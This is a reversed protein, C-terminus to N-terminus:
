WRSISSCMPSTSLAPRLGAPAACHLDGPDLWTEDIAADDDADLGVLTQDAEAFRAEPGIRPQDEFGDLVEGIVEDALIGPGDFMVELGHRAVRM